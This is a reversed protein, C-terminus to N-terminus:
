LAYRPEAHVWRVASCSPSPATPAPWNVTACCPHSATCSRLAPLCRRAPMNASRPARSEGSGRASGAGAGGAKETEVPVGQVEEEEVQAAAPAGREWWGGENRTESWWALSLVALSSGEDLLRARWTAERRIRVEPQRQETEKSHAVRSDLTRCSISTRIEPEDVPGAARKLTEWVNVSLDQPHRATHVYSCSQWGLAEIETLHLQPRNRKWLLIGAHLSGSASHFSPPFPSPSQPLLTFLFWHLPKLM